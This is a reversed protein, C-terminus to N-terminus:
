SEVCVTASIIKPMMYMSFTKLHDAEFFEAVMLVSIIVGDMDTKLNLQQRHGM